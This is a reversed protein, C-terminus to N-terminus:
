AARSYPWGKRANACESELEDQAFDPHVVEILAISTGQFAKLTRRVERIELEV